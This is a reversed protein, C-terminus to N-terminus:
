EREGSPSIVRVSVETVHSGAEPSKPIGCLCM